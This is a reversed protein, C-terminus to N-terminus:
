AEEQGLESFMYANFRVGKELDSLRIHENPAHAGSNWYGVNGPASLGPVGVWRKLSGLLPLTGGGIPVINPTQESFSDTLAIIRQAFKDEMPTVVPDAMGLWSVHIDEFGEANLHAILKEYIDDPNQDPVLRFDMKAKAAAPLVTKVGEDIYGSVIGAINATPAVSEYEMGEIGRLGHIFEEIEYTKLYTERMDTMNAVAERQAPTLEKVDDYFGKIQIRKREKDWLTNLAQVLRWAGSPLSPALGSHADKALAQVEYEVYLLGKTGLYIEPRDDKDFGVGEWLCGDAKLTEGHAKAFEEFHPSGIEEEGEIIWKVTIPLAGSADKLARLAALRSIIEGKNDCVGRAYLSGDRITPEFPPSNWLEIPDEPPVDYHNYLLLTFHSIGKQEAYVYPPAGKLKLQQTEFGTDQLMEEVLSATEEMGRNQAAVSPIRCLEELLSQAEKTKEDLHMQLKESM